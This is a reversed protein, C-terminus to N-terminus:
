NAVVHDIGVRNVYKNQAFCLIYFDLIVLKSAMGAFLNRTVLLNVSINRTYKKRKGNLQRCNVIALM